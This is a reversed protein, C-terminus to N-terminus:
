AVKMDFYVVDHPASCYNGNSDVVCYDQAKEKTLDNSLHNLVFRWCADESASEFLKLELSVEYCDPYIGCEEFEFYKVYYKM